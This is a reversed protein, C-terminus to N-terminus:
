EKEQPLVELDVDEPITIIAEKEKSKEELFTKMAEGTRIPIMFSMRNWIMVFNCGYDAEQLFISFEQFIYPSKLTPVEIRFVDQSAKYTFTGWMGVGKNLIITWQEEGPIGFISYTGAPLLQGGFLIDKTITIETADDDGMRWIKGFPISVGFKKDYDNRMKPSGYTVKIYTSDETMYNTLERPSKRPKHALKQAFSGHSFTVLMLMLLLYRM